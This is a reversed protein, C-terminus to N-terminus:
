HSHQGTYSTLTRALLSLFASASRRSTQQRRQVCVVSWLNFFFFFNIKSCIFDLTSFLGHEIIWVSFPFLSHSRAASVSPDPNNNNNNNKPDWHLWWLCLLMLAAINIFHWFVCLSVPYLSLRPDFCPLCDLCAFLDLLASIFFFSIWFGLCLLSSGSFLSAPFRLLCAFTSPFVTVYTCLPPSSFLSLFYLFLLSGCTSFRLYVPFFCLFYCVNTYVEDPFPITATSSFGCSIYLLNIIFSRERHLNIPRCLEETRRRQDKM